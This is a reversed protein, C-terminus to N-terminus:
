ISHLRRATRIIDSGYAKLEERLEAKFRRENKDMLHRYFPLCGPPARKMRQRLGLDTSLFKCEMQRINM